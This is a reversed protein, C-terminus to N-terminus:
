QCAEDVGIGMAAVEAESAGVGITLSRIAVAARASRHHDISILHHLLPMERATVEDDGNAKFGNVGTKESTVSGSRDKRFISMSAATATKPPQYYNISGKKTGNSCEM